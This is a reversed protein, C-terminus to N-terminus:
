GPNRSPWKKSRLRPAPGTPNNEKQSMEEPRIGSM